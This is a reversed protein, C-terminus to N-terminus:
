VSQIQLTKPNLSKKVLGWNDKFKILDKPWVACHMSLPRNPRKGAKFNAFFYEQLDKLQLIFYQDDETESLLVFICVLNPNPLKRKGKLYQVDDVIKINLFSDISFQWSPGNIAKVQIPISRGHDNTIRLHVSPERGTILTATYGQRGLKAAVLYEGIKHTLQKNHKAPKM